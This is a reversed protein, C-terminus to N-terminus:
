RRVRSGAPSVQTEDKSGGSALVVPIAVAAGAGVAILGWGVVGLGGAAPVPAAPAVEPKADAVPVPEPAPVPGAGGVPPAPPLAAGPPMVIDLSNITADQAVSLDVRVNDGVNLVYDGESLPPIEYTGDAKTLVSAVEDGEASRVTIAQNEVPVRTGSTLVKGTLSGPAVRVTRVLEQAPPKIGGEQATASSGCM